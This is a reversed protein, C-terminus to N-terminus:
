DRIKLVIKFLFVLWGGVFCLGGIPTLYALHEIWDANMLHRTSLLYLSLSFLYTGFEFLRYPPMLNLDKQNMGIAGLGLIALAHIFQYRVGTQFTSLQDASLKGELGHAAFAGLVVASAASIVAFVLVKKVM